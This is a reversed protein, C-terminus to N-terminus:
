MGKVAAEMEGPGIEGDGDADHEGIYDFAAFAEDESFVEWEVMCYLADFGEDASLKGSGDKDIMGFAEDPTPTQEPKPPCNPPLKPFPKKGNAEREMNIMVFRMLNDLATMAEGFDLETPDGDENHDAHNMMWDYMFIADEEEMEGYEVACYLANFGEQADVGGSNNKDILKFVQDASLEGEPKPPCEPADFPLDDGKEGGQGGEGGDTKPGKGDGGDQLRLAAAGIALLAASFVKM